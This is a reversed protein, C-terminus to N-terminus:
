VVTVLSVCTSRLDFWLWSQTQSVWSESLYPNEELILPTDIRSPKSCFIKNTLSRPMAIDFLAKSARVM